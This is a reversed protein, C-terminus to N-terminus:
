RSVPDRGSAQHWLLGRLDLSSPGSVRTPRPAARVFPMDDAGLKACADPSPLQLRRDPEHATRSLRAFTSFDVIHSTENVNLTIPPDGRRMGPCTQAIEPLWEQISQGRIENTILKKGNLSRPPKPISPRAGRPDPTLNRQCLRALKVSMWVPRVLNTQWLPGLKTAAGVTQRTTLDTSLNLRYLV